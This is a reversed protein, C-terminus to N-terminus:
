YSVIRQLKNKVVLPVSLHLQKDAIYEEYITFDNDFYTGKPTVDPVTCFAEGLMATFYKSLGFEYMGGSVLAIDPCDNQIAFSQTIGGLRSYKIVATQVGIDYFQQIASRDTASEDIALHIDPYRKLLADYTKISHFPEEFYLIDSKSLANMLDFHAESLLGNADIVIKINSEKRITCVQELIKDHMKLKIRSADPNIETADHHLTQGIPIVVPRLQNFYQYAIVDFCSSANPSDADLYYQLTGLTDIEKGKLRKFITRVRDAVYSITEDHYWPTEFCNAEAFYETGDIVIGIVLVKRHNLTVLNTKVPVKFPAEFTYFNLKTMKM